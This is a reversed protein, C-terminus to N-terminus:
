LSELDTKLGALAEELAPLARAFEGTKRARGLNELHLAADVVAQAGFNVASGKLGHATREVTQADECAIGRRLNDLAVPYEELFLKAIDRLLDFDGGMRLLADELDVTNGLNPHSDM